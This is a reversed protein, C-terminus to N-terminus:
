LTVVAELARQWRDYDEQYEALIEARTKGSQGHQASLDSGTFSRKARYLNDEANGLMQQVARRLDKKIDPNM